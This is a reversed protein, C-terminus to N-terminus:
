DYACRFGPGPSWAASDPATRTFVMQSERNAFGAVGGGKLFPAEGPPPEVWEPANGILDLVGTESAGDPYSGVPALAAGGAILEPQFSNGWPYMRGYTGAAAREWEPESPLRGQAWGCYRRADVWAISTAPLADSANPTDSWAPPATSGTQRAFARYAARTVE